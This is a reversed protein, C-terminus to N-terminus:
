DHIDANYVFCDLSRSKAEAIFRALVQYAQNERQDLEEATYEEMSFVAEPYEAVREARSQDVDVWVMYAPSLSQHDLVEQAPRVNRNPQDERLFYNPKVDELTLVGGREQAAARAKKNELWTEQTHYLSGDWRGGWEGWDGLTNHCSCDDFCPFSREFAAQAADDANERGEALVIFWVLSHM